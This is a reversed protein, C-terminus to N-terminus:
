TAVGYLLEKSQLLWATSKCEHHEVNSFRRITDSLDDHETENAGPIAHDEDVGVPRAAFIESYRPVNM